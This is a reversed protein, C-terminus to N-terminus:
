MLGDIDIRHISISADSVCAMTFDSKNEVANGRNADRAESISTDYPADVIVNYQITIHASM